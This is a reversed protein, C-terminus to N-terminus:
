DVTDARAVQMRGNKISLTIKGQMFDLLEEGVMERRWGRLLEVGDYHGRAIDQLESHSALTQFAIDNQKARLRVIASMLDVQVDVNPESKGCREIEPWTEPSADLASRILDIVTRADRTPLKERMGRVM